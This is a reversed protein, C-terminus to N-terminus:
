YFVESFLDVERYPVLPGDGIYGRNPPKVTAVFETFPNNRTNLNVVWRYSLIDTYASGCSLQKHTSDSGPVSIRETLNRPEVM